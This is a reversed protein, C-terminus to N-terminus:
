VTQRRHEDPDTRAPPQEYTYGYGTTGKLSAEGIHADQFAKIIRLQNYEALDDIKQFREKLSDLIPGAFALVEESIGLAKLATDDKKQLTDNIM